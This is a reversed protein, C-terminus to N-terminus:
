DSTMRSLPGGVTRLVLVSIEERDLAPSINMTPTAAALADLAARPEGDIRYVAFYGFPYADAATSSRQEPALEMFEATAFGPVALVDALHRDAYWSTFEDERGPICKTQVLLLHHETM